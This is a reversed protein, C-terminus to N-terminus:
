PIAINDCDETLGQIAPPEQCYRIRYDSGGSYSTYYYGYGALLDEPIASLIGEIVLDNLQGCSGYQVTVETDDGCDPYAEHDNNYLAFATQLSKVDEVRRANRGKSKIGSLSVLVTAALLGIVAIVVLLEILTFAKTKSVQPM